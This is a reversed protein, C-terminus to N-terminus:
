EVEAVQEGRATVVHVRVPTDLALPFAPTVFQAGVLEDIADSADAGLFRRSGAVITPESADAVHVYIWHSGPGAVAAHLIQRALPTM